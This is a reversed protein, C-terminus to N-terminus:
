AKGKQVQQMNEDNQKSRNEFKTCIRATSGSHIIICRAELNYFGKAIANYASCNTLRKCHGCTETRFEEYEYRCSFPISLQM